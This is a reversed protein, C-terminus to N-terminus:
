SSAMVPLDSYRRRAPEPRRDHRACVHEIDQSLSGVARVFSHCESVFGGVALGLDHAGVQWMRSVVVVCECVVVVVNECM